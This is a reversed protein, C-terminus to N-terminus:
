LSDKEKIGILFAQVELMADYIESYDALFLPVNSISTMANAINDILKEVENM